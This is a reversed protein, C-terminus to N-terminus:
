LFWGVASPGGKPAAGTTHSASSGETGWMFVADHGFRGSGLGAVQRGVEDQRLHGSEPAAAEDGIELFTRYQGAFSASGLDEATASSRVAIPGEALLERVAAGIETGLSPVIEAAEFLADIRLMESEIGDPTPMGASTIGSIVSQLGSTEVFERYADTTIAVASPVPFGHSVLRDLGAAKGGVEAVRAGSGDLHRVFEM